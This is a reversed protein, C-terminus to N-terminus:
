EKDDTLGFFGLKMQREAEELKAVCTPCIDKLIVEMVLSSVGDVKAVTQSLEIKKLRDVKEPKFGAESFKVEGCKDCTIQRAM